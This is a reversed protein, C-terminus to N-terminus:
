GETRAIYHLYPPNRVKEARAFTDKGPRPLPCEELTVGSFGARGVRLPPFRAETGLAVCHVALLPLPCGGLIWIRAQDISM